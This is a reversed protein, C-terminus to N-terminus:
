QQHVAALTATVDRVVVIGSRDSSAFLAGDPSLAGAITTSLHDQTYAWKDNRIDYFWSGGDAGVFVLSEGDPGYAFNRVVMDIDHWRLRRSTTLAVARVRGDESAIVLDRDRPDFMIQRVPGGVKASVIPTWNTTDYVVVIGKDPGVALMRGNTSPRLTAVSGEGKRVLRVDKAPSVEWISGEADQVVLHGNHDLVVLSMLPTPRSFLSTVEGSSPSWILLRGDDGVSAVRRDSDVYRASRVISAHEKLIGTASGDSARWTRVTGDNSFTLVSQGDASFVSRWVLGTHGRFETVTGDALGVRRVIQDLGNTVLLSKAERDFTLDFANRTTKLVVRADRSPPDWVRVTGNVDGVLIHHFDKSPPAVFSIQAAQGDYRSVLRTEVDYVYMYSADFVVLQRGTAAPRSYAPPVAVSFTDVLTLSPPSSTFRALGAAGDECAFGILDSRPMFALTALRKTCAAVRALVELDASLLAINGDHDGIVVHEATSDLRALPLSAAQTAHASDLALTRLGDSLQVVVLDPTAFMLEVAGPFREEHVVSARSGLAWITLLGTSDIAALRSGDLALAM